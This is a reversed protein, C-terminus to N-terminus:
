GLAPRGFIRTLVSAGKPKDDPVLQVTSYVPGGASTHYVLQLNQRKLGTFPSAFILASNMESNGSLPLTRDYSFILRTECRSWLEESPSATVLVVNLEISKALRFGADLSPEELLVPVRDVILSSGRVANEGLASHHASVLEELTYTRKPVISVSLRSDAMQARAGLIFSSHNESLAQRLVVHGSSYRNLYDDGENDCRVLGVQLDELNNLCIEQDIWQSTEEPKNHIILTAGSYDRGLLYHSPPMTNTRRKFRAIENPDTSTPDIKDRRAYAKLAEFNPFGWMTAIIVGQPTAGLLPRLKPAVLNQAMRVFEMMQLVSDDLARIETPTKVKQLGPIPSLLGDAGADLTEYGYARAVISNATETSLGLSLSGILRDRQEIYM